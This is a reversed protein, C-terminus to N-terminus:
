RGRGPQDFIPIVRGTESIRFGTPMDQRRYRLSAIDRLPPRVKRAIIAGREQGNVLVDESHYEITLGLPEYCSAWCSFGGFRGWARCGLIQEVQQKTMGPRLHGALAQGRLQYYAGEVGNLRGRENLVREVHAVEAHSLPRDLDALLASLLVVPLM